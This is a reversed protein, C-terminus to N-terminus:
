SARKGLRVTFPVDIFLNISEALFDPPEGFEQGFVLALVVESDTTEKQQGLLTQVVIIGAIENWVILLHGLKVVEARVQAVPAISTEIIIVVVSPELKLVRDRDIWNIRAEM